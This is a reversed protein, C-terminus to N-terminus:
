SRAHETDARTSLVRASPWDRRRRPLQRSDTGKPRVGTAGQSRSDALAPKHETDQACGQLRRRWSYSKWRVLHLPAHSHTRSDAQASTAAAQVSVAATRERWDQLRSICFPLLEAPRCPERAAHFLPSISSRDRPMLAMPAM